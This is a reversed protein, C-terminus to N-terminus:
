PSSWDLTALSAEFAVLVARLLEDRQRCEDVIAIM